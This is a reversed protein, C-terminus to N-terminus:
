GRELGRLLTAYLAWLVCAGVSFLLVLGYPFRPDHLLFRYIACTLFGALAVFLLVMRVIPELLAMVAHIAFLAARIPVAAL